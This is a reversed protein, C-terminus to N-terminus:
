PHEKLRLVQGPRILDPDPGIVARNTAYIQHWRVSVERDTHDGLDRAAIAWLSDGPHVTVEESRGPRRHAPGEAREPLPLGTLVDPADADVGGVGDAQAPAALTGVLAAGCAALAIRRVASGSPPAGVWADAVGALGQLWAWLVTVALAVLCLRAIAADAQGGAPGATAERVLLAAAGWLVATLGTAVALCRPRGAAAVVYM